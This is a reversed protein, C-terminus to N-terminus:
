AREVYRGDETSVRVKEGTKIFPPVQIKLGTELIADKTISGSTNGRAVDDQTETVTFVMKPPLDLSVPNGNWFAMVVEAEPVLFKTQLGLIDDGLTIQDYTGLDMFHYGDQDDYLFQVTRQEFEAEEPHAGSGKFTKEAVLGDAYSRMKVTTSPQGKGPTRHDFTLVEYLKGDMVIKKGPRLRIPDITAM